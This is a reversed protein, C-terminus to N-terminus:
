WLVTQCFYFRIAFCFKAVEMSFALVTNVYITIHNSTFSPECATAPTGHLNAFDMNLGCYYLERSLICTPYGVHVPISCLTHSCFHWCHRSLASSWIWTTRVDNRQLQIWIPKLSPNPLVDVVSQRKYRIYHALLSLRHHSKETFKLGACCSSWGLVCSKTATVHNNISQIAWERMVLILLSLKSREAPALPIYAM